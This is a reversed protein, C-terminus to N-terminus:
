PVCNLGDSQRNHWKSNSYLSLVYDVSILDGVSDNDITPPARACMPGCANCQGEKMTCKKYCCCCCSFNLFYNDPNYISM